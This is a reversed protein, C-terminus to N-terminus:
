PGAYLVLLELYKCGSDVMCEHRADLDQLNCSILFIPLAEFIQSVSPRHGLRVDIEFSNHFHQQAFSLNILESLM